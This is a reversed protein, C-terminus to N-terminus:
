KEAEEESESCEDDESSEEVYQQKRNTNPIIGYEDEKLSSDNSEEEPWPWVGLRKFEKKHDNTLVRVIEAKVRNGEAIPEVIVYDGRKIWVNKRFKTPMSALYLLGEINEVQLYKTLNASYKSYTNLM